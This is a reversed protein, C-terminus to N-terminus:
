VIPEPAGQEEQVANGDASYNICQTRVRKAQRASKDTLATGHMFSSM